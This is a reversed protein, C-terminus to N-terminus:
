AGFKETRGTLNLLIPLVHKGKIHGLGGKYAERENYRSVGDKV